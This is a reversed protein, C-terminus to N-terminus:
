IYEMYITLFTIFFRLCVRYIYIVSDNKQVASVLVVSYM